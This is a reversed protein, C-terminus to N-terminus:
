GREVFQARLAEQMAPDIGLGESFYLEIDGFQDHMEQFSAELYEQRVGLIATLIEKEVGMAVYKDILPQYEPLIFDNSLLYEQMVAEKPVGCL